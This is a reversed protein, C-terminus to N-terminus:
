SEKNTPQNFDFLSELHNVCLEVIGNYDNKYFEIPVPNSDLYVLVRDSGFKDCCFSVLKKGGGGKTMSCLITYGSNGELNFHRVACDFNRGNCTLRSIILDRLADTVLVIRNNLHM